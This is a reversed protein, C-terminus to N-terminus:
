HSLIHCKICPLYHTTSYVYLMATELNMAGKLPQHLAPKSNMRILVMLERTAVVVMDKYTGKMPISTVFFRGPLIMGDEMNKVYGCYRYAEYESSTDPQNQDWSDLAPKIHAM